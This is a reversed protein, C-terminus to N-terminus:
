TNSDVLGACPLGRGHQTVLVTSASQQRVGNPPFEALSLHVKLGGSKLAEPASSGDMVSLSDRLPNAPMVSPLFQGLNREMPILRTPSACWAPISGVPGNIDSGRLCLRIHHPPRVWLM